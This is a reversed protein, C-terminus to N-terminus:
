CMERVELTYIIFCQTDSSLSGALNLIIILHHLVEQQQRMNGDARKLSESHIYVIFAGYQCSYTINVSM